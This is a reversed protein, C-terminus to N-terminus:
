CNTKIFAEHEVLVELVKLNKFNVHQKVLKHNEGWTQSEIKM